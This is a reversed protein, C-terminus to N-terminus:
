LQNTGTRDIPPNMWDPFLKYVGAAEADQPYRHDLQLAAERQIKKDPDNMLRLFVPVLTRKDAKSLELYDLGCMRRDPDTDYTWQILAPWAFKENDGLLCFAYSAAQRYQWASWIHLRYSLRSPLWSIIVKRLRSDTKSGWKLLVPIVNTGMQHIANSVVNDVEPGTIIISGPSFEGTPEIWQTLTRGQYRPQKPISLYMLFGAALLIALGCLSVRLRKTGGM